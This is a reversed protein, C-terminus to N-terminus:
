PRVWCGDSGWVSPIAPMSEAAISSPRRLTRRGILRAVATSRTWPRLGGLGLLDNGFIDKFVVTLERLADSDLETDERM